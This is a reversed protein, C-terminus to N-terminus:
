RPISEPHERRFRERARQTANTFSNVGDKIQQAALGKIQEYLTEPPVLPVGIGSGGTGPEVAPIKAPIKGGALTRAPPEGPRSTLLGPNQGALLSYAEELSITTGDSRRYQLQKNQLQLSTISKANPYKACLVDYETQAQNQQMYNTVQNLPQLAQPLVEGLVKRVAREVLTNAAIEEESMNSEGPSQPAPQNDSFPNDISQGAQVRRVADFVLRNIAPNETIIAGLDAHSRRADLERRAEALSQMRQTFVGNMSDYRTREEETLSERDVNMFSESAQGTAQETPQSTAQTEESQDTKTGVEESNSQDDINQTTM